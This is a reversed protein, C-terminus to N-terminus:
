GLDSLAADIDASTMSWENNLNAIVNETFAETLALARATDDLHDCLLALALQRSSAGVYTWEFGLESFSRIDTRPALPEGNVTVQIGDITRDGVYIKENSSAM